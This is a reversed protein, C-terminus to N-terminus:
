RVFGIKRKPIVPPTLLQKIASFVVTFQRDYKKEMEDIKRKLEVHGALMERLRIFARVVYLSMDVARPSNLISALMIAGHETFAYPMVPSHKLSTLNDCNAILESKEEPTLRFMFDDPFREKNRKVQENLRFTQVGYLIALDHDILVRKGRLFLIKGAIGELQVANEM